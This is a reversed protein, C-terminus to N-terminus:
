PKVPLGRGIMRISLISLSFARREYEMDALHATKGDSGADVILLFRQLMSDPGATEGFDFLEYSGPVLDHLLLDSFFGPATLEDLGVSDDVALARFYSTLLSVRSTKSSSYVTMGIAIAVVLLVVFGGIIAIIGTKKMTM